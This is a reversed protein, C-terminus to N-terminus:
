SGFYDLQFRVRLIKQIEDIPSFANKLLQRQLKGLSDPQIFRGSSQSILGEIARIRMFIEYAKGADKFLSTYNPELEALREFRKFTNNIGVIGHSLVLVRAADALPMMARLKIDFKEAHDGSKEVMFNRFFGLPPPNLLANKSLFNLYLKERDIEKYIYGTLEEALAFKGAVPRFDFFITAMLLSKQDPEHIWESFYNKWVSLPQCWKPNNAMMEAPCSQFGCVFLTDMVDGALLHMYAMARGKLEQGVDEYVLANDLDTRLLQEGRGESGLCLFCFELNNMDPFDPDHRSKAMAIARAIIVDNIETIIGAIFDMAVENELFFKLMIEAQNRLKAIEHVDGSHQLARILVAPSNGQSLLVDHDSVIGIVGSDSTGDETFILHHLSNKIMTLYVESFDTGKKATIVPTSMISAVNTSYPLNAAILRNRLDKDTIIGVPHHKGDVIVISGVKHDSMKKVAAAVTDGKECHIVPFNYDLKSKGTFLMLGNEQQPGVILSRAKQSQSLDSRVVVQGAAFGAAFYLSVQSNEKLIKDFTAVPIAYILTNEAARASLIYPRKGLLALVGFVDGEDCFEVPQEKGDIHDTLHVAGEKLVFFFNKAAEGKQFLFEDKEYYILEVEKAVQELLSKSLFGFPPFKKLFEIVRNVIVNAM